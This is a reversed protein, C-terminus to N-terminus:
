AARKAAMRRRLEARAEALQDVADIRPRGRLPRPPPLGQATRKRDRLAQQSRRWRERFAQPNREWRRRKQANKRARYKAGFETDVKARQRDRKSQERALKRARERNNRRWQRTREVAIKRLLPDDRYTAVQHVHRLRRRELAEEIEDAHWSHQAFMVAIEAQLSVDWTM